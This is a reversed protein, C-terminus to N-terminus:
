ILFVRNLTFLAPRWTINELFAFRELKTRHYRSLLFTHNSFDILQFLQVSFYESEGETEEKEKMLAIPSVSHRSHHDSFQQASMLCADTEESEVAPLFVQLLL